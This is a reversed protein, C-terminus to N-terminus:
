LTFFLVEQFWETSNRFCRAESGCNGPMAEVRTEFWLDIHLFHQLSNNLAAKVEIDSFQDKCASAM